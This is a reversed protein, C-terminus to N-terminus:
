SPKAEALAFRSYRARWATREAHEDHTVPMGIDDAHTALEAAVHVAQWRCPYDGVSNWLATAESASGAATVQAPLVGAPSCRQRPCTPTEAVGLANVSDLDTGGREAFGVLFAAVTRDLCARHYDEGAALHRNRGTGEVWGGRHGSGALRALAAFSRTWAGPRPIWCPSLISGPWSVTM